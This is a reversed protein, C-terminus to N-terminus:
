TATALEREEAEDRRAAMRARIASRLADAQRELHELRGARRELEERLAAVVAPDPGGAPQQFAVEALRAKLAEADREAVALKREGQEFGTRLM